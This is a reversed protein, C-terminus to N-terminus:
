KGKSCIQGTVHATFSGSFDYSGDITLQGTTGRLSHTGRSVTVHETFQRTLINVHGTDAFTLNGRKSTFLLTGSHDGLANTASSTLVAKGQLRGLRLHPVTFNTGSAMGSITTDINFCHGLRAVGMTSPLERQELQEFELRYSARNTM